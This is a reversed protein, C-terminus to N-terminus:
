YCSCPRSSKKGGINELTNKLSHKKESTSQWLVIKLTRFAHSRLSLRRSYPNTRKVPVCLFSSIWTVTRMEFIWTDGNIQTRDSIGFTVLLSLHFTFSRVSRWHKYLPDLKTKNMWKNIDLKAETEHFNVIHLISRFNQGLGFWKFGQWM